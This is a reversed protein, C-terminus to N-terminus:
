QFLEQTVDYPKENYWFVIIIEFRDDPYSSPLPKLVAARLAGEAANDFGATGSPRLVEVEALNGSRLVSIGVAVHGYEWAASYPALWHRKVEGLMHYLWPVFDAGKDNYYLTNSKGTVLGGEPNHFRSADLFRRIDEFAGGGGRQGGEGYRKPTPEPIRAREMPEPPDPNVIDSDFYTFRPDKPLLDALREAAEDAAVSDESGESDEDGTGNSESDEVVEEAPEGPEGEDGPDDLEEDTVFEDTNGESFPLDNMFEQQKDQPAPRTAKPIILREQPPEQMLLLAEPGPVPIAQAGPQQQPEDMFLVLRDADQQQAQEALDEEGPSLIVPQLIVLLAILLHVTVSLTFGGRRRRSVSRLEIQVPAPAAAGSSALLDSFSVRSAASSPLFDEFGHVREAGPVGLSVAVAPGRARKKKRRPPPAAGRRIETRRRGPGNYRGQM